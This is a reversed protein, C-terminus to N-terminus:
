ALNRVVARRSGPIQSKLLGDQVLGAGLCLGDHFIAVQGGEPGAYPVSGGALLAQLAGQEHEALDVRRRSIWPAIFQLFDSTVKTLKGERNLRAMRIGSRQALQAVSLETERSIVWLDKDRLYAFQDLLEAPLGYESEMRRLIPQIEPHEPTLLDPAGARAPGAHSRAPRVRAADGTKTFAAIFFGQGDNDQPNLRISRALRPDLAQGDVQTWGAEVNVGPLPPLAELTLPLQRLAWDVRLENEEATLTCTSYVLRGGPRLAKVAAHFLREQVKVLREMRERSWWGLVEPQRGIIGLASCPADLLVRDFYGPLLNGLRAGDMQSQSVNITGLRDLNFALARVRAASVDNALVLGRGQMAQALQTTKSGPAACLDLVREGPQPDLVRVPLYSSLDQLYYLGMAHELLGGVNADAPAYALLAPDLVSPRTHIGQRALRARLAEVEIRQTNVRIQSRTPRGACALYAAAREGFYRTTFDLLDKGPEFVAAM